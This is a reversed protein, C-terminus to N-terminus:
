SGWVRAVPKSVGRHEPQTGKLMFTSLCDVCPAQWFAEWGAAHCFLAVACRWSIGALKCQAQWCRCGNLIAVLANLASPEHVTVPNFVAATSIWATCNVCCVVCPWCARQHHAAAMHM